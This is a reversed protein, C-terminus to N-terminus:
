LIVNRDDVQVILGGLNMGIGRILMGDSKVGVVGCVRVIQCRM